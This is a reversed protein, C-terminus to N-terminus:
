LYSEIKSILTAAQNMLTRPLLQLSEMEKQAAKLNAIYRRIVVARSKRRVEQPQEVEDQKILTTLDKKVERYDKGDQFVKKKLIDYDQEDIRKKEKALRLVNVAEYHPIRGPAVDAGQQEELYWAEEKELFMYSRLLKQATQRHIGIEKSTYGDFTNFGWRRYLKDRHVNYLARGLEIWSTKFGKACELVFRRMSDGGAEALKDEIRKIGKTKLAQM